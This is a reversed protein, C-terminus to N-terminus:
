PSASLLLGGRIDMKSHWDKPLTLHFAYKGTKPFRIESAQVALMSAAVFSWAFAAGSLLTIFKRRQM